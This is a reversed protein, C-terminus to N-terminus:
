ESPKNNIQPYKISLIDYLEQLVEAGRKFLRSNHDVYKQLFDGIINTADFLSEANMIHAKKYFEELVSSIDFYAKM